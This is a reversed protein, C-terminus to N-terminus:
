KKLEAFEEAVIEEIYKDWEEATQQRLALPIISEITNSVLALARVLEHVTDFHVSCKADITAIDRSVSGLMSEHHQIDPWIKDKIEAALADTKAAVGTISENTEANAVTVRGLISKTLSRIIQQIM